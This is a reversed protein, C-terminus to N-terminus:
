PEIELGPIEVAGKLRRREEARRRALEATVKQHCWYCLTRYNDLDCEGGGEVVPIIHDADWYTTRNGPLLGRLNRHFDHSYPQKTGLAEEARAALDRVLYRLKKTDMGCKACVGEDRRFVLLRVHGPDTKIKWGDVCAVSCFTRRRKPVEEGCQRCLNRGNPGKPLKKPDVWGAAKSVRNTSM